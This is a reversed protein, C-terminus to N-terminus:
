PQSVPPQSAKYIVYVPGTTVTCSKVNYLARAITAGTAVDDNPVTPPHEFVVDALVATAGVPAIMLMRRAIVGTSAILETEGLPIIDLNM